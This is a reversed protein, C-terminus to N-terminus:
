RGYDIIKLSFNKGRRGFSQQMTCPKRDQRRSEM